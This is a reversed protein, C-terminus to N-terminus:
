RIASTRGSSIFASANEGISFIDSTNTMRRMMSLRPRLPVAAIFEDYWRTGRRVFLLSAARPEQNDFKEANPAIRRLGSQVHLCKRRYKLRWIQIRSLHGVTGLMGFHTMLNGDATLCLEAATRGASDPRRGRM